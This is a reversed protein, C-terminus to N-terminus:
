YFTLGITLDIYWTYCNKYNLDMFSFVSNFDSTKKLQVMNKHFRFDSHIRIFSGNWLDLKTVSWYSNKTQTLVMTWSYKCRSVRIGTRFIRSTDQQLAFDQVMLSGFAAQILSLPLFVHFWHACHTVIFLVSCFM